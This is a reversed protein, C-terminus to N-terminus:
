NSILTSTGDMFIIELSVLRYKGEFNSNYFGTGKFNITENPNIPGTITWQVPSWPSLSITDPIQDGVANFFMLSYKVYKIVKKSQNTVKVQITNGGLFDQEYGVVTFIIPDLPKGIKEEYNRNCISCKYYNIIPFDTDAPRTNTLQYDCLHYSIIKGDKKQYFMIDNKRSDGQLYLCTLETKQANLICTYTEKKTIIEYALESHKKIEKFDEDLFNPINLHCIHYIEKPLDAKILASEFDSQKAEENPTSLSEEGSSDSDESNTFSETIGAIMASGVFVVLLIVFSWKFFNKIM